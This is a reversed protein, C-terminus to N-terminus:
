GRGPCGACVRGDGGKSGCSGGAILGDGNILAANVVVAFDTLKDPPCATLPLGGRDKERLIRLM